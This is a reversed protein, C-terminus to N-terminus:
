ASKSVKRVLESIRANIPEFADNAVKVSIESLKTGEAVMSEISKQTTKNQLDTLDKLTKVGAYAQGLDVSQQVSAQAYSFIAKSLDEVGKAVIQSSKVLAEVNAKSIAQVEDVNTFTNQVMKLVQLQNDYFNGSWAGLPITPVGISANVFNNKDAKEVKSDVSESKAQGSSAPKAVEKVVPASAKPATSVVQQPKAAAVVPKEAVPKAVPKKAAESVNAAKPTTLGPAPRAPTGYPASPKPVVLSPTNEQAKVPEQSPTPSVKLSSVTAATTVTSSVVEPKASADSSATSPQNNQNNPKSASTNM